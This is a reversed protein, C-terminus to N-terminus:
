DLQSRRDDWYKGRRCLLAQDSPNQLLLEVARELLLTNQSSKVLILSKPTLHNTLHKELESFRSFYNVPFKKAKLVPLTHQKVAQGFLIAEDAYDLIWEALQKHAEKSQKGLERMDGLIVLKHRHTGLKNLLRLMNKMGSPTTNYSSDIIISDKKGKLLSSRGPPPQYDALAEIGLQPAIGLSAAAALAASFTYVYSGEFLHALKLSYDQGQYHFNYSFGSLSLKPATFRFYASRAKGFTLLRSSLHKSLPRFEKQDANVIATGTPHIGQALKMKEEAIKLRIKDMRRKPHRDKVLYDFSDSHVLGANLVIGIHPRIISLLYTMNKPSKPSDIGMEVVYYDFHEWNILLMVPALVILRLWDLTSYNLPSLGLINLPIGSESNARHSQKVKGKKALIMSLARRTSTKGASGTIGIVVAHPNKKLQLRALLRFYNLVILSLTKKM